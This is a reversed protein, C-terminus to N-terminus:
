ASLVKRMKIATMRKGSRLVHEGRSIVDYGLAAYFPEANTSSLLELYELANERAIREIEEVIATGVHRRAADPMVYCARLESNRLVLAGIGVPRGDLEAILRIEDEANELFQALNEPTPPFAWASIVDPPYAESALGHVSQSHIDLFTSGEDGRIPRVAVDPMSNCLLVAAKAAGFPPHPCAATVRLTPAGGIHLRFGRARQPFCALNLRRLSRLENNARAATEARPYAVRSPSM